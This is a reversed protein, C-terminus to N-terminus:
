IILQLMNYSDDGMSQGLYSLKRTESRKKYTMLQRCCKQVMWILIHDDKFSAMNLHKLDRSVLLRCVGDISVIHLM